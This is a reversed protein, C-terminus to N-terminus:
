IKKSPLMCNEILMGQLKSNQPESNVKVPTPKDLKIQPQTAEMVPAAPEETHETVIEEEESHNSYFKERFVYLFQFVLFVLLAILLVTRLKSPSSLM